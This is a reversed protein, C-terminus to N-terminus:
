RARRKVVAVKCPARARSALRRRPKAKGMSAFIGITYSLNRSPFLTAAGCAVIPKTMMGSASASRQAAEIRPLAPTKGPRAVLTPQPANAVFAASPRLGLRM